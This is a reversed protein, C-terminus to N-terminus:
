ANFLKNYEVSLATVCKQKYLESFNRKGHVMKHMYARTIGCKRALWAISREQEQLANLLNQNSM